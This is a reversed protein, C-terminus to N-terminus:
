DANKLQFVILTKDKTIQMAYNGPIIRNFRRDLNLNEISTSDLTITEQQVFVLKEGEKITAFLRGAIKNQEEEKLRSNSIELTITNNDTKRSYIGTETKSLSFSCAGRGTSCDSYRGFTAYTAIGSQAYTTVAFLLIIYRLM